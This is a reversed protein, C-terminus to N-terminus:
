DWLLPMKAAPGRRFMGVEQEDMQEILGTEWELYKRAAELCGDHRNHVFFLYDIM